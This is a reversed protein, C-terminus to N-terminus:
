VYIHWMGETWEDMPPCRPVKQIKAATFMPDCIDGWHLIMEKLVYETDPNGYWM